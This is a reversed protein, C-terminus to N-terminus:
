DVYSVGTARTPQQAANVIQKEIARCIRRAIVDNTEGGHLRIQGIDLRPLLGDFAPATCSLLRLTQRAIAEARSEFGAPLRLDFRDISMRGIGNM